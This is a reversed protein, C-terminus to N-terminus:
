NTTGSTIFQLNNAGLDVTVPTTANGIKLTASTSAAGSTSDQVTLGAVQQANFAFPVAAM